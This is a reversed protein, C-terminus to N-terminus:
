DILDATLMPAFEFLTIVVQMYFCRARHGGQESQLLTQGGSLARHRRLPWLPVARGISKNVHATKM